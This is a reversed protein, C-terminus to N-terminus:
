SPISCWFDNEKVMIVVLGGVDPTEPAEQVFEGREPVREVLRPEVVVGQTLEDGRALEVREGLVVRM